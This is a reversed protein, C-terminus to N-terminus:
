AEVHRAVPGLCGPRLEASSLTLLLSYPSTYTPDCPVAEIVSKYLSPFTVGEPCIYIYGQPHGVKPRPAGRHSPVGPRPVDHVIWGQGPDLARANGQGEEPNRELHDKTTM